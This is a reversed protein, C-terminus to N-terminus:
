GEQDHVRYARRRAKVTEHLLRDTVAPIVKQRDQRSHENIKDTKQEDSYEPDVMGKEKLLDPLDTRTNQPAINGPKKNDRKDREYRFPGAAIRVRKRREAEIEDVDKHRVDQEMHHMKQDQTFLPLAGAEPQCIDDAEDNIAQARYEAGITRGRCENDDEKHRDPQYCCFSFASNNQDPAAM